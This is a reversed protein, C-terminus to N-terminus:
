KAFKIYKPANSYLQTYKKIFDKHETYFAELDFSIGSKAPCTEFDLAAYLAKVLSNTIADSGRKWFTGHAMLWHLSAIRKNVQEVDKKSLSRGVYNNILNNYIEDCYKYSNTIGRPHHILSGGGGGADRVFQVTAAQPYEIPPKISHVSKEKLFKEYKELYAGYRNEKSYRTLFVSADNLRLEGINAAKEKDAIHENAWNKYEQAIYSTTDSFSKGDLIMSAAGNSTAAMQKSWAEDKGYGDIEIFFNKPNQKIKLLGIRGLSDLRTLENHLLAGDETPFKNEGVSKKKKYTLTDTNTPISSIKM